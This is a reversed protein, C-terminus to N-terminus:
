RTRRLLEIVERRDQPIGAKMRALRCSGNKPDWLSDNALLAELFARQSRDLASPSTPQIGPEFKVEPFARRLLLGWDGDPFWKSADKAIAVAVPLLDAFSLDRSVLERLLAERVGQHRWPAEEFWGALAQPRTLAGQLAATARPDAHLYVSACVRVPEDDDDLWLRTDGGLEGVGVVLAAREDRTKMWQLRAEFNAVLDQARSAVTSVGGLRTALHVSRVRVSPEQDDILPLVVDVLEALAARLDVMSWEWLRQLASGDLSDLHNNELADFYGIVDDCTVGVDSWTLTTTGAPGGASDAAGISYAVEDLFDLVGALLPTTESASRRLSPDGLVGGVIRVAFPTVPYVSYQHVVSYSLHDLAELQASLVGGTLARLHGPTDGAPGYAHLLCAWDSGDAVQWGLM